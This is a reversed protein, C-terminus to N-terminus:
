STPMSWLARIEAQKRAMEAARREDRTLWHALVKEFSKPTCGFVALLEEWNSDLVIPEGGDVLALAFERDAAHQRTKVNRMWAANAVAAVTAFAIQEVGIYDTAMDALRATLNRCVFAPGAFTHQGLTVTSINDTMSIANKM